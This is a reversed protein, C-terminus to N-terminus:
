PPGFFEQAEAHSLPDTRFGTAALIRRGVVLVERERDTLRDFHDSADAHSAAPLRMMLQDLVFSAVSPALFAKGEAVARM